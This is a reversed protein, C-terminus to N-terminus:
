CMTQLDGGGLYINGWTHTALRKIRWSTRPQATFPPFGCGPGFVDVHNV